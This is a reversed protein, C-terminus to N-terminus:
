SHQEMPAECRRNALDVVAPVDVILSVQGDGMITAGSVIEIDKFAAGLSQIVTQHTGIVREVVLGVRQGERRVIIVKEASRPDGSLNLLRRLDIYPVLEGRVGIMGRGNYRGKEDLTLEVNEEVDTMPVIFQHDGVEVLLGEIIALTLPLAISVTTGRGEHSSISVAGRLADIQRRVVDM